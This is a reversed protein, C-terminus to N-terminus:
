DEETQEFYRSRVFFMGFTGSFSTLAKLEGSDLKIFVKYGKGQRYLEVARDLDIEIYKM